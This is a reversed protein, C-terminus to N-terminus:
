DESSILFESSMHGASSVQLSDKESGATLNSVKESVGAADVGEFYRTFAAMKPSQFM